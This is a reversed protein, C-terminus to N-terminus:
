HSVNSVSLTRAGGTQGIGYGSLRNMSRNPSFWSKMLLVVSLDIEHDPLKSVDSLIAGAGNRQDVVGALSGVAAVVDALLEVVLQFLDAPSRQRDDRSGGGCM